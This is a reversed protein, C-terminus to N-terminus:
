EITPLYLEGGEEHFRKSMEDMGEQAARAADPSSMGAEAEGRDPNESSPMPNLRAFERVEASIKM